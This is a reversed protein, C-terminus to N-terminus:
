WNFWKTESTTDINCSIKVIFHCILGRLWDSTRSGWVDTYLSDNAVHDKVVYNRIMVNPANFCKLMRPYMRNRSSKGTRKFSRSHYELQYMWWPISLAVISPRAIKTSLNVWQDRPSKLPINFCNKTILPQPIEHSITGLHIDSSNVPSPIDGTCNWEFLCFFTSLFHERM